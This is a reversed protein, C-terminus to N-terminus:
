PRRQSPAPRPRNSSGLVAYAWDPASRHLSMYSSEQSPHPHISKASRCAPSKSRRGSHSGAASGPPRRFAAPWFGFEQSTRIGSGRRGQGNPSRQNRARASRGAQAPEATMHDKYNGLMYLQDPGYGALKLQEKVPWWYVGFLKYRQPEQQLQQLVNRMAFPVDIGDSM